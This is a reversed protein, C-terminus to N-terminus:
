LTHGLAELRRKLDQKENVMGQLQAADTVHAQAEGLAQIRQRITDAETPTSASLLTPQGAYTTPQPIHLEEAMFADFGNEYQQWLARYAADFGVLDEHTESCNIATSHDRGGIKEGIAKLSLKTHKRMQVVVFRRATVKDKHRDKSKLVNQSIGFFGCTFAIIANPVDDIPYHEAYAILPERYLIEIEVGYAKAQQMAEDLYACITKHQAPSLQSIQNNM